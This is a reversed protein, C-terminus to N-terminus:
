ADNTVSRLEYATKSAIHIGLEDYTPPLAMATVSRSEKYGFSPGLDIGLGVARLL